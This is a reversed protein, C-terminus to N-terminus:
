GWYITISGGRTNGFYSFPEGYACSLGNDECWKRIDSLFVGHKKTVYSEYLTVDRFGRKAAEKLASTLVDDFFQRKREAGSGEYLKKLEDKLTM